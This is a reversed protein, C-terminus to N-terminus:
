RTMLAREVGPTLAIRKCLEITALAEKPEMTTASRVATGIIGTFLRGLRLADAKSMNPKIRLFATSVTEAHFEMDQADMAQLRKDSQSAQWIARGGPVTCFFDFYSDIMEHMASILDDPKLVTAFVAVVCARGDSNYRDALTAIIAAKDPFYQYLSAISIDAVGAIESMAVADVGKQVILDVAVELIREFRERSRAQMPEKRPQMPIISQDCNKLNKGKSASQHKVSAYVHTYTVNCFM